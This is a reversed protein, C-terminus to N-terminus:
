PGSRRRRPRPDRRGQHGPLDHRDGAVDPGQRRGRDAAATAVANRVDQSIEERIKDLGGPRAEQSRRRGQGPEAGELGERLLQGPHRRLGQGIESDPRLDGERHEDPSSTSRNREQIRRQDRETGQRRQRRALGASQGRRRASCAGTGRRVLGIRPEITRTNESTRIPVPKPDNKVEVSRSGKEHDLTVTSTVTVNPIYALANRVKTTLAQEHRECPVPMPMATPAAATRKPGPHIRGNADAITVNEPKM